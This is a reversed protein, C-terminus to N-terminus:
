KRRGFGYTKWLEGAFFLGFAAITGVKRRLGLTDRSHLTAVLAMLAFVGLRLIGTAVIPGSRDTGQHIRVFLTTTDRWLRFPTGRKVTKRGSFFHPEGNLLFGTEYVMETVDSNGTPAFLQFNTMTAPLVGGLRPCYLHAAMESRHEPDAVFAEIDRIDITANIFIPLAAQSRVAAVPDDEGPTIHGRMSERFTVGRGPSRMTTANADLAIGDDSMERLYRSADAYGQDVLADGSVKKALYDPDLPIPQEPKILHVVIRRAHGFPREGADISANISRIAELESNLAGIASMEIMHVYQNLFGPLFESTNGICWIIWIENAGRRVCDLINSDKIWVADTWTEGGYEVAPTLLPLSVGALLLPLRLDKHPIAVVSKDGFRCVNFSGDITQVQNLKPIDIGLHPFVRDRLGDFDGMASLNPFRSYARLSNLSVFSTPKLTRWRYSLEDPEVGSLLAAVNMTGGSTGDAYSYRIGQQHLAQVAGAQYAVRMGGGPLILARRNPSDAAIAPETM